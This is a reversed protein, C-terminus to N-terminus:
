EQAAADMHVSRLKELILMRAEEPADARPHIYALLNYAPDSYIFPTAVAARRGCAPCTSVNLLGALVTYRLQPQQVVNIYEYITSPFVNGCPFTFTQTTSLFM